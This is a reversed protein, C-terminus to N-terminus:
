IPTAAAIQAKVISEANKRDFTSLFVLFLNKNNKMEAITIKVDIPTKYRVLLLISEIRKRINVQSDV